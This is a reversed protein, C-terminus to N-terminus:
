AIPEGDSVRGGSIFNIGDQLDVLNVQRCLVL